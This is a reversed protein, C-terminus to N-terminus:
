RVRRTGSRVATSRTAAYEADLSGAAALAGRTECVFSASVCGAVAAEVPDGARAFEALFGGCFADGAGTPDVLDVQVAPVHVVSDELLVDVGEAGRKVVLVLDLGRSRLERDLRRLDGHGWLDHVEQESPLFADVGALASGDVYPGVDVFSEVFLDLTILARTGALEALARRHGSSTQPALHVGSARRVREPLHPRATDLELMTGGEAKELQRRRGSGEHLLWLGISRATTARSVATVDLGAAAIRELLDIPYDDGVGAVVAVGASWLLAGVASYLAGGGPQKWDIGEDEIVVDDITLEGVTALEVATM